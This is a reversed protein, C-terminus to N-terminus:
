SATSFNSGTDEDTNASSPPEEYDAHYVEQQAVGDTNGREWSAEQAPYAVSSAYDLGYQDHPEAQQAYLLERTFPQHSPQKIDLVTNYLDQLPDSCIYCQMALLTATAGVECGHPGPQCDPHNCTPCFPNDICNAVLAFDDLEEDPLSDRVTTYAVFFPM